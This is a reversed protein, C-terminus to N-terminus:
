IHVVTSIALNRGLDKRIIHRRMFYYIFLLRDGIELILSALYNTRRSRLFKQASILESLSLLIDIGVSKSELINTDTTDRWVPAFRRVSIRTLSLPSVSISRLLCSLCFLALGASKTACTAYMTSSVGLQHPLGTHRPCGYAGSPPPWTPSSTKGHQYLLLLKRRHGLALAVLATAGENVAHLPRIGVGGDEELVFFKEGQCLVVVYSSLSITGPGATPHVLCSSLRPNHRNQCLSCHGGDDGSRAGSSYVMHSRISHLAHASGAGDRSTRRSRTACAQNSWIGAIMLFTQLPKWQHRSAQATACPLYM